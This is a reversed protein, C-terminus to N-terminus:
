PFVTTNEMWRCSPIEHLHILFDKKAIVFHEEPLIAMNVYPHPKQAPGEGAKAYQISYSYPSFCKIRKTAM